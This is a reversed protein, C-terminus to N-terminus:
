CKKGGHRYPRTKNYEHKKLVAAEIDIGIVEALDCIRILADALEGPLGDPGEMKDIRYAELAESIESHILCLLEPIERPRDWWGHNKGNLHVMEAIAKLHM